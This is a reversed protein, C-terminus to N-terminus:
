GSRARARTSTGHERCRTACALSPPSSRLPCLRRSATTRTRRPPAAATALCLGPATDTICGAAITQDSTCSGSVALENSNCKIYVAQASAAATASYTSFLGKVKANTLDAAGQTKLAIRPATAGGANHARLAIAKATDAYGYVGSGGSQGYVAASPQGPLLAENGGYGAVGARGNGTGGSDSEGVIAAANSSANRGIIAAHYTTPTVTFDTGAGGFAAYVAYLSSYMAPGTSDALTNVVSLGHGAFSGSWTAGYHAHDGAAVDHSTTGPRLSLVVASSGSANLGDGASLTAVGSLAGRADTGCVPGGGQYALTQGDSCTASLALTSGGAVVFGTAAVPGSPGDPGADGPEGSLSVAADQAQAVFPSSTRVAGQCACLLAAIM